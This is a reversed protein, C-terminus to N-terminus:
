FLRWSPHSSAPQLCGLAALGRSDIDPLTRELDILKAWVRITWTLRPAKCALASEFRMDHPFGSVAEFESQCLDAGSPFCGCSLFITNTFSAQCWCTCYSEIARVLHAVHAGINPPTPVSPFPARGPGHAIVRGDGRSPIPSAGLTVPRFLLPRANQEAGEHVLVWDPQAPKRGHRCEGGRSDWLSSASESFSCRDPNLRKRAPQYARATRTRRRPVTRFSPRAVATSAFTCQSNEAARTRAM